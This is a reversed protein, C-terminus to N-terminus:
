EQKKPVTHKYFKKAIFDALMTITAIRVMNDNEAPVATDPFQVRVDNAVWVRSKREELSTKYLFMDAQVDSRFLYESGPERTTFRSLAVYLVHQAGFVRGMQTRDTNDWNLNEDQWRIVRLPDIIRVNSVNARILNSISSAVEVRARPYEFLTGADAYVVVMLSHGELGAYEAQVEKDAPPPAFAYALFKAMSCGGLTPLACVAILMLLVRAKSM